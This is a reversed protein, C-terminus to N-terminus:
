KILVNYCYGIVENVDAVIMFSGLKTILQGMDLLAPRIGPRGALVLLQPNYSKTTEHM